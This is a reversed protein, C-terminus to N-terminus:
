QFVWVLTWPIMQVKRNNAQSHTGGMDVTNYIAWMELKIVLYPFGLEQFDEKLLAKIREIGLDKLMSQLDILSLVGNM